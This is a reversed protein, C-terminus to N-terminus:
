GPGCRARHLQIQTRAFGHDVQSTPISPTEALIGELAGAIQDAPGCDQGHWTEFYLRYGGIKLIMDRRQGERPLTDALTLATRIEDRAADLDMVPGDSALIRARFLALDAKPITGYTEDELDRAIELAHGTEGYLLLENALTQKEFPTFYGPRERWFTHLERSLRERRGRKAETLADAEVAKGTAYLIYLRGNLDQVENMKRQADAIAAAEQRAGRLWLQDYLGLMVSMIGLLVALNKARDIWGGKNELKSLRDEISKMPTNDTM